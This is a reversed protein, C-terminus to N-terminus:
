APYGAIDSRVARVVRQFEPTEQMAIARPRPLDVVHTAHVRSPRPSLVIVRDGLFVAESISHTILVVTAGTAACIRQLELNMQDRTMADLAGFPEDLLLIRPSTSLARALSVRQRMGGSLQRPRATEFGELGVLACLERARALRQAKPAGRLRLPLAINQEITFWPFLRPEQFAFALARVADRGGGWVSQGDIEISGRTPRELGGIMRLLTTKGCGSPGLVSVFEGPRVDFAIEHIAEVEGVASAFTKGVSELRLAPAGSGGAADRM